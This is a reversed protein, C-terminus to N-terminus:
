NKEKWKLEKFLYKEKLKDIFTSFYLQTYINFAFEYFLCM